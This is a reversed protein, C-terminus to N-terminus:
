VTDLDIEEPEGPVAEDVKVDATEAAEDDQIPTPLEERNYDDGTIELRPSREISMGINECFEKAAPPLKGILKFNVICYKQGAANTEDTLSFETVVESLDLGAAAIEMIAYNRWPDLSTPPLTLVVPVPIGEVLVYIRHANKCAKGKGATGFENYPCTECDIAEGTERVVGTIGDLSSCIPPTNVNEESEPFRANSKHHSIIVGRFSEVIIERNGNTVTFVKVGGAGVKARLNARGGIAEMTKQIRAAAVKISDIDFKIDAVAENSFLDMINAM